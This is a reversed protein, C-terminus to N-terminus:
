WVGNRWTNNKFLEPFVKVIVILYLLCLLMAKYDEDRKRRELLTYCACFTILSNSYKIGWWACSYKVVSVYVFIADYM